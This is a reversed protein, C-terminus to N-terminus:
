PIAAAESDMSRSAIVRVFEKQRNGEHDLLSVLFRTNEALILNSETAQIDCQGCCGSLNDVVKEADSFEHNLKWVEYGYGSIANCCLFVSTSTVAVATIGLKQEVAQDGSFSQAYSEEFMKIQDTYVTKQQEVAEIRKKDRETREAEPKELLKKLREDLLTVQQKMSGTMEEIQKKFGEEVRQRFTNMDGVHPSDATTIIEGAANLKAMKGVGAVFITGDPALNIATPTFPLATERILKGEPSIFQVLKPAEVKKVEQTGDANLVATWSDAGSM